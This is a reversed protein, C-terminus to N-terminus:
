TIALEFGVFLSVLTIALVNHQMLKRLLDIHEVIENLRAARKVIGIQHTAHLIPEELSITIHSLM